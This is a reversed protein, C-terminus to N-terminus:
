TILYLLVWTVVAIGACSYLYVMTADASPRLAQVAGGAAAAERASRMATALLTEVSYVAGLWFALFMATWGYFVSAYGGGDAGFNVGALYELLQLVVAAVSLALAIGLM